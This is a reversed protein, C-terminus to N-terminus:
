CTENTNASIRGPSIKPYKLHKNKKTIQCFNLLVHKFTVYLQAGNQNNNLLYTICIVDQM